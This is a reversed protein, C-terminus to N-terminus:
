RRTSLPIYSHQARHSLAYEKMMAHTRDANEEDIRYHFTPKSITLLPGTAYDPQQEMGSADWFQRDAQKLIRDLEGM